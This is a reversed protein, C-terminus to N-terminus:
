MARAEKGERCLIFQGKPDTIVETGIGKAEFHRIWVYLDEVTKMPKTVEFMGTPARHIKGAM